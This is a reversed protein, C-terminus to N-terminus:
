RIISRPPSDFAITVIFDTWITKIAFLSLPPYDLTSFRLVTCHFERLNFLLLITPSEAIFDVQYLHQSSNIWWAPLLHRFRIKTVTTWSSNSLWSCHDIYVCFQVISVSSARFKVDWQVNSSCGFSSPGHVLIKKITGNISIIMKATIFTTM